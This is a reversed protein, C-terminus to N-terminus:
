KDKDWSHSDLIEESADGNIEDFRDPEPPNRCRAM